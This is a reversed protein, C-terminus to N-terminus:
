KVLRRHMGLVALPFWVACFLLLYAVSWLLESHIM